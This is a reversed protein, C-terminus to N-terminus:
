RLLLLSSLPMAIIRPDRIRVDDTRTVLIGFNARNLTKELFSRLGATDEDRIQNQYKIEIPIRNDGITLVFDVEPEIERAPFHHVGIGPLSGLFYGAVSEALHGALDALDPFQRLGDPTLPVKEDLWSARLAPDCLCIKDYGKRRRMRLELPAILKILLTNDLRRLEHLIKQWGIEAGLAFHAEQVLIAQGPTQGAYRCALTLIEELLLLDGYGRKRDAALDHILARQIVTENLHEMVAEWAPAKPGQAFPYAGRESYAAFARDRLERQELGLQKLNEWAEAQKLSGFNNQPLLTAISAQLHLGAIERLLLPGLEISSVRGALSDHGARIRLASSGTLMAHVQHHDVLSKIQPAWSSVNQIEDFFLYAPKGARAAENFSQGLIQDEYWRGLSLILDQYARGGISPIEDFQVRFIRRPDIREEKLFHEIVQNQLTTKGVQRPGKLVVGPALGEKLDHVLRDYVWRHFGPVPAGPRSEWWPNSDRLFEEVEAPMQLTRLRKPQSNKTIM